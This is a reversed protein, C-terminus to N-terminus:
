NSLTSLILQTNGVWLCHRSSFPLSYSWGPQWDEMWQLSILSRSLQLRARWMSRGPRHRLLLRRPGSNPVQIPLPHLPGSKLAEKIQLTLQPAMPHKKITLYLCKTGRSHQSLIDFLYLHASFNHPIRIRSCINRPFCDIITYSLSFPLIELRSALSRPCIRLVLISPSGLRFAWPSLTSERDFVQRLILLFLGLFSSCIRASCVQGM